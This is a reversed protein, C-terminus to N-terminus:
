IVGPWHAVIAASCKSRSQSTIYLEGNIYMHKSEQYFRDTLYIEHNPYLLKYISEINVVDFDSFCKERIPLCLKYSSKETADISTIHRSFYQSQQILFSTDYSM